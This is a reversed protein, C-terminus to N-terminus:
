SGVVTVTSTSTHLGAIGGLQGPVQVGPLDGLVVGDTLVGVHEGDVGAGHSEVHGRFGGPQGSQVDVISLQM